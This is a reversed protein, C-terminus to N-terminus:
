SSTQDMTPGCERGRRAEIKPSGVIWPSSDAGLPQVPRCPCWARRWAASRGARRTLSVQRPCAALVFARSALSRAHGALNSRAPPRADGYQRGYSRAEPHRGEPDELWGLAQRPFRNPAACMRPGNGGCTRGVRRPRADRPDARPPRRCSRAPPPM